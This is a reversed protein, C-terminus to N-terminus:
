RKACEMPPQMPSLVSSSRASNQPATKEAGIHCRCIRAAVRSSVLLTVCNALTMPSPARSVGPAFACGVVIAIAKSPLGSVESRAVKSQISPCIVRWGSSPRPPGLM